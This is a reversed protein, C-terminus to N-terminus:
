LWAQWICIAIKSSFELIRLALSYTQTNTQKKSHNIYLIQLPKPTAGTFLRMQYGHCLKLTCPQLTISQPMELLWIYMWYFFLFTKKKNTQKSIKTKTKITVSLMKSLIRVSVTMITTTFNEKNVQFGCTESSSFDLASFRM